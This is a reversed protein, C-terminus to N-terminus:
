RSGGDSPVVVGVPGVLEDDLPATSWLVNYLSVLQAPSYGSGFEDVAARKLTVLQSDSGLRLRLMKDVSKPEELDVEFDYITWASQESMQDVMIPIQQNLWESKPLRGENLQQYTDVQAWFLQEVEGKLVAGSSPGIAKDTPNFGARRVASSIGSEAEKIWSSSKKAANVKANLLKLQTPGISKRYEDLNPDAQLDEGSRNMQTRFVEEDHIAAGPRAAREETYADFENKLKTTPLNARYANLGAILDGQGIPDQNHIDYIDNVAAHMDVVAANHKRSKITERRSDNTDAISRAEKADAESIVGDEVQQNITEIQRELPMGDLRRALARGAEKEDSTKGVNLMSEYAALHSGHIEGKERAASLYKRGDVIRDQAAMVAISEGHFTSGRLLLEESRADPDNVGEREFERMTVAKDSAYLDDRRPDDPRMLAAQGSLHSHARVDNEAMASNEERAQYELANQLQTLGYSNARNRFVQLGTDSLGEEFKASSGSLLDRVNKVHDLANEGKRTYLEALAVQHDKEFNFFASEGSLTERNLYSKAFEDANRQAEAGLQGIQRQLIIGSRDITRRASAGQIASGIGANPVARFDRIKSGM